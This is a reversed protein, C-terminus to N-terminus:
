KGAPSFEQPNELYRWNKIFSILDAMDQPPIDKELGEPMFSVGDSHLDDIEDRRLTESKGEQQKLTVSTSTEAALIGAHVRGDTTVATYSFYNSDIARNPQLIDTLLQLPTRERSDSIDPALQTGVDNIRHCMSCRKEFIGRGRAPDSELELRPKYETLIKERDAPVMAALLRAARERLATDNHNLLQKARLPDIVNPKITGDAMADFLLGTRDTNALVADLIARQIAPSDKTFNALLQRWPQADNSKALATIAAQRVSQDAESLAIPLLVKSARDAFALLSVADRRVEPPTDNSEAASIADEMVRDLKQRASDGLSQKLADLSGGRRSAETFLATLGPWELDNGSATLAEIATAAQSKDPSAAALRALGTIYHASEDDNAALKTSRRLVRKLIDGGVNGAAILAADREWGDRPIALWPQLPGVALAAQFRVRADSHQREDAVQDQLRQSHALRPEAIQVAQEVIRPDDSLLAKTIAGDDLAGFQDLLRLAHIVAAQSTHDDLVKKLQPAVSRDQRERLLRAATERRWANRSSLEAVLEGSSMTSM